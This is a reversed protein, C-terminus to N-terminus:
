KKHKSKFINSEYKKISQNSKSEELESKFCLSLDELNNKDKKNTTNNYEYEKENARSQGMKSTLTGNNKLEM